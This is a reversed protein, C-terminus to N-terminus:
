VFLRIKRPMEVSGHESGKLQILRGHAEIEMLRGKQWLERATTTRTTGVVSVCREPPDM